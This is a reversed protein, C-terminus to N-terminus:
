SLLKVVKENDATSLVVATENDFITTFLFDINIGAEGVKQAIKTCEGPKDKVKVVVVDEEHVNNFKSDKLMQEVKSNNDTIIGFSGHNEKVEAWIARINSHAQDSILSTLEGAIGVNNETEVFLEKQISAMGM